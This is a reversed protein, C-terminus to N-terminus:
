NKSLPSSKLQNLEDKLKLNEVELEKQRRHIGEQTAQMEEQNQRLEEEQARLEEGMKQSVELLTKTRENVRVANITSALSESFKEVFEIEHNELHTLSAIELIGYVIENNILPMILVSSPTTEGLGSRINMYNPPIETLYIKKKELYCQGVLGDGIDIRKNLFKKRNFAYCSITTLHVDEANEDKTIYIAGQHLQLYDVLFRLIDDGLEKLSSTNKRLIEGFGAIGENLWRRKDDEESAKKLGERM